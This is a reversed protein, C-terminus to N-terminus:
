SDPRASACCLINGACNM